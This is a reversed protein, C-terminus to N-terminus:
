CKVKKTPKTEDITERTRKNRKKPYISCAGNSMYANLTTISTGTIDSIYKLDVYGEPAKSKAQNTEYFRNLILAMITNSAMSGNERSYREFLKSVYKTYKYPFGLRTVFGPINQEIRSRHSLGLIKCVAIVHSGLDKLALRHSVEDVNVYDGCERKAVVLVAATTYRVPRRGRLAPTKIFYHKAKVTVRSGHGDLGCESWRLIEAFEDIRKERRDQSVDDKCFRQTMRRYIEAQRDMEGKRAARENPHADAGSHRVTHVPNHFSSTTGYLMHSNINSQVAGCNTCILEAHREDYVFHRSGRVRCNICPKSHNHKGM